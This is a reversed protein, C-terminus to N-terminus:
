TGIKEHQMAKKLRRQTEARHRQKERTVQRYLEPEEQRFIRRYERYRYNTYLRLCNASCTKKQQEAGVRLFTQQCILCQALSMKLPRKGSACRTQYQKKSNCSSSCCKQTSIRPFYFSQCVYCPRAKAVADSWAHDDRYERLRIRYCERSCCSLM